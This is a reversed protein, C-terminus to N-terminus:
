SAAQFLTDATVAAGGESSVGFGRAWELRGEHIMAVSVGPVHLAAMRDALSTTVTQGKILVSPVIANQIARIHQEIEVPAQATIVGLSLFSAIAGATLLSSVRRSLRGAFCM